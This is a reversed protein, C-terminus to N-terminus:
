LCVRVMLKRTESEEIDTEGQDHHVWRITPKPMGTYTAKLLLRSGGRVEVGQKLHAAFRVFPAATCLSLM